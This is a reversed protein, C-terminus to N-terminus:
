AVARRMPRAVCDPWDAGEPWHEAFWEIAREYSGTTLDAGNAIEDIRAGRKLVLTSVRARSRGTAGCYLDALTVIHSRLSTM